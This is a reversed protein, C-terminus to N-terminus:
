VDMFTKNARYWAPWSDCMTIINMLKDSKVCDKITMTAYDTQWNILWKIMNDIQAKNAKLARSVISSSLAYCVDMKRPYDIKKGEFIGDVDPLSTYVKTYGIFETAMGIGICGAILPYCQDINKVKKMFTDVM